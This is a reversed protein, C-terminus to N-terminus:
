FPTPTSHTKFFKVTRVVNSFLLLADHM